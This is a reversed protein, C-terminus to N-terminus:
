QSLYLQLIGPIIGELQDRFNGHKSLLGGGSQFASTAAGSCLDSFLFFSMISSAISFM